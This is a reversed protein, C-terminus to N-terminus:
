NYIKKSYGTLFRYRTSYFYFTLNANENEFLSMMLFFLAMENELVISWFLIATLFNVKNEFMYM